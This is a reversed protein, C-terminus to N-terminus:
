NFEINGNRGGERIKAYEAIMAKKFCRETGFDDIGTVEEKMDKSIILGYIRPKNDAGVVVIKYKENEEFQM